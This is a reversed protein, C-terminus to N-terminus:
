KKDKKPEEKKPEEKKAETVDIVAPPPTVAYDKGGVKTTARLVVPTPGAAAAPAVTLGVEAKTQGKPIPKVAPTVNPPVFLPALAIDADAEKERVAEVVLKGAKGKEVAAPDPKVTVAFPPKDVVAVACGTLVEAPPNPIGGLAAKAVDTFTAYRVVEQGDITAKAKLRFAYGGPKAGAKVLLPVVAQTQGNPVTVSGGLNDNGVVSLEVPGAFGNLRAVTTVAVATGGGAPAEYRDLALAVEFDPAAPRVSLHYVENPGFLYNLHECAVVVDGDAAPTFEVRAGPQAPNSRALEAGKADLVRILVETPANVEYTLAAAVLKQGKKGPVVFHDIDGKTGFRASVGGPVPLKNAKAAEDNPEQEVAEPTDSLRVAVPWGSLGAGKPAAYVCALTPDAPAKVPVAAIGETGPGAFGVKAETGRRVALPFATTAAPFEGVRLRYHFDGGGRYTTDRVEVLVEGAEKFTHTLRCDGQLGPTDDAYLDILERKTKADHLVVIPDLPSGIRRALVEFTVTQGAAVKVKFFDSAEPDTRGTAVCPAAVVQAADKTRNADTEAVEPLEDVVFPRLNSVGHKTAVRLTYLGIPADAPVDVKVRLKAADTGNKNDTPITATGPGNLLIATPDALNTGTLVVEVSGGRKAGLNAPSTLTPAQPAPPVVLPKPQAQASGVHLTGTAALGAAFAAFTVLCSLRRSM